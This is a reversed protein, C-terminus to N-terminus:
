NGRKVRLDDPSGDIDIHFKTEKPNELPIYSEIKLINVSIKAFGGIAEIYPSIPIIKIKFIISTSISEM